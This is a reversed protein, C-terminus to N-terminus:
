SAPPRDSLKIEGADSLRRIARVIDIHAREAEAADPEGLEAVEERISDALRGPLNTLLFEAVAALAPAAAAGALALALREQEVAKAVSPVDRAELRAPIDAFTFIALRVEAALAEDEESLGALVEERTPAPAVDLIAGLRAVAAAAFARPPEAKLEAALAVGIRKVADPAIGSTESVAITLRRADPGPLASLLDAAKAIDLKSLVVAGIEPSENRILQLLRPVPFAAITDWPDDGWIVGSQQRLKAAMDPSIAGELIRLTGELGGPFALGISDLETAFEEIVNRLTGRDIFRMASIQRTLEAQLQEPLDSLPLQVGEALLLRVVIAAKQRRTFGSSPLDPPLANRDTDRIALGSSM